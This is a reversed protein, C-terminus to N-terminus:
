CVVFQVDNTATGEQLRGPSYVSVYEEFNVRKDPVGHSIFFRGRRSTLLNM